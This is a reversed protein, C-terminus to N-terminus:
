SAERTLESSISKWHINNNSMVSILHVLSVGVKRPTEIANSNGTDRICASGKSDDGFINGNVFSSERYEVNRTDCYTVKGTRNRKRGKLLEELSRIKLCWHFNKVVDHAESTLIQQFIILSFLQKHHGTGHPTNLLFASWWVGGVVSVAVKMNPTVSVASYRGSTIVHIIPYRQDNTYRM